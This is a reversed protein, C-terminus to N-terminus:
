TKQLAENLRKWIENYGKGTAASSLIVPGKGLANSIVRAQRAKENGSLKDSKTAVVIRSISLHDLWEALELCGAVDAAIPDLQLLIEKVGSGNERVWRQLEEDKAIRKGRRDRQDKIQDVTERNESSNCVNLAVQGSFHCHGAQERLPVDRAMSPSHRPEVPVPAVKQRLRQLLLKAVGERKRHRRAAHPDPRLGGLVEVDLAPARKRDLFSHGHPSRLEVGDVVSRAREEPDPEGPEILGFEDFRHAPERAGPASEDRGGGERRRRRGRAPSTAWGGECSRSERPTRPPGM